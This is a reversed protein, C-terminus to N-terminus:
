PMKRTSIGLWLLAASSLILLTTVAEPSLYHPKIVAPSAAVQALLLHEPKEALDATTVTVLGSYMAQRKKGDLAGLNYMDMGALLDVVDIEVLHSMREPLQTPVSSFTYNTRAFAPNGLCFLLAAGFALVMRSM